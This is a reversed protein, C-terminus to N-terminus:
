SPRSPRRRTSAPPSRPSGHGTGGLRSVFHDPGAATILRSAVVQLVHDGVDHGYTDNVAKFGDLDALVLGIQGGTSLADKLQALMARRNGVGTLEDEHALRSVEALERRHRRSVLTQDAAVIMILTALLAGQSLWSDQGLTRRILAGACGLLILSRTLVAVAARMM